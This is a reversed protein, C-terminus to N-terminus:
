ACAGGDIRLEVTRGLGADDVDVAAATAGERLLRLVTARGIGSAGGTVLVRRNVFRDMTRGRM